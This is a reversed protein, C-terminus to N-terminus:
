LLYRRAKTCVSQVTQPTNKLDVIRSSSDEDTSSGNPNIAIDVGAEIAGNPLKGEIILVCMAPEGSFSTLRIMTFKRNHTSAKRQPVKGKKTLLLEGGNIGDGKMSINEGVEDGCLCLEPQIIKHHIQCGYVEEKTCVEENKNMGIPNDLKVALKAHILKDVIHNYM